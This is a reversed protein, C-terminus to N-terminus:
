QRFQVTRLVDVVSQDWRERSFDVLGNSPNRHLEVNGSLRVTPYLRLLDKLGPVNFALEESFRFTVVSDGSKDLVTSVPSTLDVHSLAPNFLLKTGQVYNNIPYIDIEDQFQCNESYVSRTFDATILAHRLTIDDSVIRQLEVAPLNTQKLDAADAISSSSILGLALLPSLVITRLQRFSNQTYKGRDALLRLAYAGSSCSLLVFFLSVCM